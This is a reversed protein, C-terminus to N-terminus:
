DSHKLWKEFAEIGAPKLGLHEGAHLLTDFLNQGHSRNCAILFGPETRKLNIIQVNIAHNQTILYFPHDLDPREIDIEVLRQMVPLAKPGWVALLVWAETMDTYAPNQWDVAMSGTLDFIVAEDQTLSGIYGKGTWKALGPKPPDLEKVAAGQVVAKPRHSLDTLGIAPAAEVPKGTQDPIKIARTRLIM